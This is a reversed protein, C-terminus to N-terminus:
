WGLYIAVSYPSIEIHKNALMIHAAIINDADIGAEGFHYQCSLSSDLRDCNHVVAKAEDYRAQIFEVRTIAAQITEFTTM